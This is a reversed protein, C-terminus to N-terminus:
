LYINIKNKFDSIVYNIINRNFGLGIRYAICLVTMIQHKSTFSINNGMKDSDTTVSDM